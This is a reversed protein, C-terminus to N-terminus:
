VRETPLLHRKVHLPNHGQLPSSAAKHVLHKQSSSPSKFASSEPDLYLTLNKASSIKSLSKGFHDYAPGHSGDGWAQPLLIASLFNGYISTPLFLGAILLMSLTKKYKM